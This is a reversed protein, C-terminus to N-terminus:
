APPARSKFYLQVLNNQFNKEYSFIRSNVTVKGKGTPFLTFHQINSLYKSFVCIPCTEHDHHERDEARHMAISLKNGDHKEHHHCSYKNCRREQNSSTLGDQHLYPIFLASLIYVVAIFITAQRIKYKRNKIKNM